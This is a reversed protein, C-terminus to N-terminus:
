RGSGPSTSSQVLPNIHKVESGVFCGWGCGHYINPSEKEVHKWTIYIPVGHAQKQAELEARRQSAEQKIQMLNQNGAALSGCSWQKSKLQVAMHRAIDIAFGSRM